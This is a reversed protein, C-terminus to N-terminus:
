RGHARDAFYRRVFEEFVWLSRQGLETTVREGERALRVALKVTEPLKDETGNGNRDIRSRPAPM